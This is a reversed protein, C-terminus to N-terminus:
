ETPDHLGHSALKNMFQKVHDLIIRADEETYTERLHAVHTRWANRFYQFEMAVQSYFALTQDKLISKRQQETGELLKDVRSQIADIINKWNELEFGASFKVDVDSALAYLGRQLIGMAHFVAATWRGLAYAKGAEQIDNIAKSFANEVTEGCWPKDYFEERAIPVHFFYVASLEDIIRGHAEKVAMALSQTGHHSLDNLLRDVQISSARMSLEACLPKAAELLRRIETVYFDPVEETGGFHMGALAIPHTGLQSAIYALEHAYTKIM